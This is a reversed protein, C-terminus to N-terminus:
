RQEMLLFFSCLGKEKKQKLGLYVRLYNSTFLLMDVVKAQRPVPLKRKSGGLFFRTSRILNAM